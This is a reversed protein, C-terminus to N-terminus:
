DMRGNPAFAPQERNFYLAGRYWGPAVESCRFLTCHISMQKDDPAVIDLIGGHSLPLRKSTIFGLGRENCDCTYLVWPPTGHEDSFLHLTARARYPMRSLDRRDNSAGPHQAAQIASVILDVEPPWGASATQDPTESLMM